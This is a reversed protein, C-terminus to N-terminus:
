ETVQDHLPKELVVCEWERGPLLFIEAEGTPRFGSAAYCRMAKENRTFVALSTTDAHLENRAFDCAAELMRSGLGQRRKAPDIIVYGFRVYTDDNVDPYRIAIHGVPVGDEDVFTYPTFREEAMTRTHHAHIDESTFPFKAIRDASWEYMSDEDPVWSCIIEADSKIYPRLKM